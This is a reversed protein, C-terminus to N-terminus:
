RKSPSRKVPVTEPENIPHNTKQPVKEQPLPEKIPEAVVTKEYEGIKSM